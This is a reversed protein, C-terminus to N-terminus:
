TRARGRSAPASELNTRVTTRYALINITHQAQRISRSSVRIGMNAISRFRLVEIKQSLQHTLNIGLYKRPAATETPETKNTNQAPKFIFATKKALSYRM